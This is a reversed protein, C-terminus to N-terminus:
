LRKQSGKTSVIISHLSHLLVSLARCHVTCFNQVRTIHPSVLVSLLRRGAWLALSFEMEREKKLSLTKRSLKALM